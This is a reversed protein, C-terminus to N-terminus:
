VNAVGVHKWNRREKVHQIASKTVGYQKALDRWLLNSDRIALVDQVTLKHRGNKEGLVPIMLRTKYAHNHNETSTVWELNSACNNLKNGDIHNVEKKNLPNPKFCSCVLRHVYVVKAVGNNWLAVKLYGGRGIWLTRLKGRLGMVRGDSYVRYGEYGSFVCMKADDEM